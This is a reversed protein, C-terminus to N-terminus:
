RREPAHYGGVSRVTVQPASKVQISVPRWRGDHESNTSTYGIVYRRRLDEVVRAFEQGLQSVDQPLLARGGSLDAMRQLTEADVKTGLGITFVTAGSEKLLELVEPLRRMSGPGTGPNDEDRGDTMVVVVRRGETQKLRLLAEAMADYLATGGATTYGDIAQSTADRNTSLDHTFSVGDSFQLVALKDEPRLAATFARASEIVEAEKRRMSGSADLALVISVPQTAEHFTDLQQLVGEEHIELDEASVNLYEGSPDMATFEITARVPAPKPAFYGPRAKVHSGPADCVVEISRWKGDQRQNGPTYTLLYRNQVDDALATHVLALQDETTPLFLRGGTESALQRLLREGKLSVGAVGGIGVVYVTVRADKLTALVEDAPTLSNEDYGDTILIIARRGTSEPLSRALQQLSDLIATGGQARISTIAETITRRDDTPGTRSGVSKSFPAVIMRDLPTMYDALTAATRQVFDLRRSMSGSSDILMAFIAGVSEHRVLDLEQPVGDESLRFATQPLHKVFRGDRDQVAAEVLVSTVQSEEVIDFPELVISDRVETGLPDTVAVAIERREFPNEDTWEVAYPAGDTDTGLLQGDIFFRVAGPEVGEDANVQAVIRIAGPLGSRGLPSTIRVSISAATPAAAAAIARASEGAEHGIPGQLLLALLPVCIAM